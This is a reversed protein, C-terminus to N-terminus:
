KGNLREATFRGHQPRWDGLGVQTGAANMWEDVRAPNVLTDEVQLTIVTSWENFIPRTRVVRSSQVRVLSAFRFNDDEWLGDASRPGEYELRAHELCFVASKATPGEKSKKAANLVMGDIVHAPIIPGDKDLYLSGMFELRAM